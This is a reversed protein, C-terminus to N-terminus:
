LRDRLESSKGLLFPKFWPPYLLQMEIMQDALQDAAGEGQDFRKQEIQARSQILCRSDMCDGFHTGISGGVIALREDCVRAAIRAPEKYHAHSGGWLGFQKLVPAAAEMDAPEELGFPKLMGLSALWVFTENPSQIYSFGVFAGWLWLSSEYVRGYFERVSQADLASAQVKEGESLMAESTQKIFDLGSIYGCVLSLIAASDDGVENWIYGQKMYRRPWLLTLVRILFYLEGAVWGAMEFDLFKAKVGKALAVFYDENLGRTTAFGNKVPALFQQKLSRDYESRGMERLARSRALLPKKWVRVTEEQEDFQAILRDLFDRLTTPTTLPVSIVVLDKASVDPPPSTSSRGSDRGIFTYTTAFGKQRIEFWQGIGRESIIAQQQETIWWSEEAMIPNAFLLKRQLAVSCAKLDHPNCLESAAANM